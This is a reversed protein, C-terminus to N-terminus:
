ARSARSKQLTRGGLILVGILTAFGVVGPGSEPVNMTAVPTVDAFTQGLRLEDIAHGGTSYLTLGLITGIDPLVKVAGSAPEAGGPTPNVYMTFVDSLLGFEAKVVILATQNLVAPVGSSVQGAGGRDEIVYENIADAGPKGMFVEPEGATEFVVGFFGNFAGGNLTGQPQLLFSLYATTGPTGLSSALTRTLGSIANQATTAASNGSTLLPGFSLSGSAIDYNNNISANFGGPQWPTAFGFGGNNGSLDSGAPGYNFGDYAILTAHAVADTFCAILVLARALSGIQM